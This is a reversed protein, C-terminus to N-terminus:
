QFNGGNVAPSTAWPLNRIQNDILLFPGADCLFISSNDQPDLIKNNRLLIEIGSQAGNDNLYFKKSGVSINDCYSAWFTYHSRIDAYGSNQFYSRYVFCGGGVTVFGNDDVGDTNDVFVCDWVDNEFLTQSGTRVGSQSCNYFGCRVIHM